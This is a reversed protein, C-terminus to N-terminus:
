FDDDEIETRLDCLEYRASYPFGTDIGLDMGVSKRGTLDSHKLRIREDKGATRGTHSLLISGEEIGFQQLQIQRNQTDTVPHLYQGRRKAAFESLTFRPFVARGIEFFRRVAQQPFSQLAKRRAPTGSHPHRMAVLDFRGWGSEDSCAPGVRQIYGGHGTFRAPDIGYLEMRLHMMGSFSRSDQSVKKKAHCPQFRIPAHSGEYLADGYLDPLLDAPLVNDTCKGAADVGRHHRHKEVLGYTTLEM